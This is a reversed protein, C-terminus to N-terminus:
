TKIQVFPNIVNEQQYILVYEQLNHGDYYRIASYFCRKFYFM